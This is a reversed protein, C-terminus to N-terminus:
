RVLIKDVKTGKVRIYLGPSLTSANVRVGQINYYIPQADNDSADVTVNEIAELHNYVAYVDNLQLTQTGKYSTDKSTTFKVKFLSLPFTALDNIDNPWPLTLDYQTNAAIPSSSGDFANILNARANLRTRLDVVVQEVPLSSTFVVHLEDPLGYFSIGNKTDTTALTMEAARPTAYTYTAVGDAWTSVKMGSAGTAKWLTWDTHHKQKEDSAAVNITTNDVVDGIKGTLATTGNKIGKLVGNADISAITPDDITWSISAPDYTFVNDGVTATVEIPYSREQDILIPKLRIAIEAQSITVSQTVSVDGLSATLEYVGPTNGATFASGNCTGATPACSLTIGQVDTDIIAGYKNFGRLKPRYTGYIPVELTNEIFELRTITNDVPATSYVIMGNAVARPSGETTKNIIAGEVLMEASGGADFNTMDWAGYHKALACMVTTSCGASTGYVPDTSKDIVMIYLTKGDKDVGYGTRSYVQSNYGESTNFKTLEGAVMVQANGAVLNNFEIPEGAPSIWNHKVTVKDGVALKSLNDIQTGRGVLVMDYTGVTGDGANTKIDAVTFTMDKGASWQQGEDLKFYVETACNPVIRFHNTTGDVYQEVCRFTRSTGYYSNYMALENDRCTKNVINIETQGFKESTVYGKWSFHGSYAKGEPTIGVVGTHKYGGNWQDNYMNTETIIKGNRLNGSYTVGILQDSFPPQGSVCWFNANAGALAIHGESTQRSAAKVLAETGYLRDNAQTTEISNYPNTVDIRLLNVNLPYEPLRLRTYRVGPGLDRDILTSIEYEKENIVITEAQTQVAFSATLALLLVSRNM